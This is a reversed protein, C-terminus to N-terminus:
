YFRCPFQQWSIEELDGWYNGMLGPMVAESGLRLNLGLGGGGWGPRVIFTALTNVM